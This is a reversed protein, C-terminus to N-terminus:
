FFFLTEEAIDVHIDFLDAATKIKSTSHRQFIKEIDDQHIGSGDDKIKISTKGAQVLEIEISDAQADLANEILEKIVSAPRDIVEGAAIKSIIDPPLLHVKPM